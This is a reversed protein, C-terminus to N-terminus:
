ALMTSNLSYHCLIAPSVQGVAPHNPDSINRIEIGPIKSSAGPRVIRKDQASLNSMDNTELYLIEDPWGPPPGGRGQKRTPPEQVYDQRGDEALSSLATSEAEAMEQLKQSFSM